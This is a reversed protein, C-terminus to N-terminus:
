VREDIGPVGVNVDLVQAGAQDQLVGEKLVDEYREELLAQKLKKKGTPNLREGCVVPREGIRVSRVGSSVITYFPNHRRSCLKPMAARLMAIGAPTTGCCGGLISVGKQAYGITRQAFQEADLAYCTKGCELHPL